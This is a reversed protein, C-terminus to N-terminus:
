SVNWVLEADDDSEQGLLESQLTSLQQTMVYQQVDEFFDGFLYEKILELAAGQKDLVVFKDLRNKQHLLVKACAELIERPMNDKIAFKYLLNTTEGDRRVDSLELLPDAGKRILYKVINILSEKDKLSSACQIQKFAFALPTEDHWCTRQGDESNVPVFYKEVLTKVSQFDKNVIFAKLIKSTDFRNELVVGQNITYHNNPWYYGENKVVSGLLLSEMVYMMVVEECDGGYFEAIIKIIKILEKTKAGIATSVDLSTKDNIIRIIEFVQKTKAGITISIDQSGSSNSAMNCNFIGENFLFRYMSLKESPAVIQVDPLELTLKAFTFQINNYFDGILKGTTCSELFIIANGMLKKPLLAFIKQLNESTIEKGQAATMSKPAGHMRPWVFALSEDELAELISPIETEPNKINKQIIEYGQTEFYKLQKRYEGKAPHFEITPKGENLVLVKKKM